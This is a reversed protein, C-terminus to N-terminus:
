NTWETKNKEFALDAFQKATLKHQGFQKQVQTDHPASDDSRM